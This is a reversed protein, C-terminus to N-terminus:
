QVTFQTACRLIEDQTTEKSVLNGTIRGNCMVLIRDSMGMVEPMESSVFLVGIGRSKLENMIAYIEVKSAVDIGRTPEDFIVIKADRVLWKGLVVKQQNGGSLNKATQEGSPTKIRLDKIARQTLDKEVRNRVVGWRNCVTDLNALGVNERISLETCLGQKKRDEPGLVIGHSIADQPHRITIPEGNLTIQGADIPDAGFLARVLETRGAGMLGSLGIIEGAFLDFSVNKVMGSSLNSVELLKAGKAVVLHPFKEKIERGIMMSIIEDLTTENYNRTAVYRGDRFISVRDTIEKLEELRHSIYIIACGQQKLDRIIRFLEVIERETLASTPEDMILIRAKTSLAKAIEVMQQKSVPLKKVVTTPDLDIKLEDLIAKAQRNMEPQKVVGHFHAERGLFMNEAVTLDTCMNLEQHIIAIGLAQATKPTLEGIEEGDLCYRGSDRQYIGSIIKMLTSKGAGNEGLLAHVEGAQLNFQVDDLAKVGPFSKSIGSLEM